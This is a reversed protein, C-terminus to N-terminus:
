EDWLGAQFSLNGHVVGTAGEHHGHGGAAGGDGQAGVGLGGHQIFLIRLCRGQTVRGVAGISALFYGLCAAVWSQLLQASYWPLAVSATPPQGRNAPLCTAPLPQHLAQAL